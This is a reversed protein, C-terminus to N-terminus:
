PTQDGITEYRLHRECINLRQQHRIVSPHAVRYALVAHSPRAISRDRTTPSQLPRSGSSGAGYSPKITYIQATYSRISCPNPAGAKTTRDRTSYAETPQEPAYWSSWIRSSLKQSGNVTQYRTFEAPGDLYLFICSKGPALIQKKISFIVGDFILNGSQFYFDKM